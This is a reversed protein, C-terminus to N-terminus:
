PMVAWWLPPWPGLAQHYYLTIHLLSWLTHYATSPKFGPELEMVAETEKAQLPSIKGAGRPIPSTLDGLYPTTFVCIEWNKGVWESCHFGGSVWRGEEEHLLNQKKHLLLNYALSIAWLVCLCIHIASVSKWIFNGLLLYGPATLWPVVGWLFLIEKYQSKM